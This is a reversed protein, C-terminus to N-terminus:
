PKKNIKGSRIHYMRETFGGERLFNDMKSAILQKLWFSEATILLIAANAVLVSKLPLSFGRNATINGAISSILFDLLSVSSTKFLKRFGIPSKKSAM